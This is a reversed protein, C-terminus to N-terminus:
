RRGLDASYLPAIIGSLSKSVDEATKGGSVLLDIAREKFEESYRNKGM